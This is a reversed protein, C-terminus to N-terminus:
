RPPEPPFTNPEAYWDAPDVNRTTKGAAVLVPILTHDKCEKRVGCTVMKSYAGPNSNRWGEGVIPYALVYYEGPHVNAIRYTQANEKTM